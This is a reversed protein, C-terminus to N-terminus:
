PTSKPSYYITETKTNNSVILRILFIIIRYQVSHIDDYKFEKSRLKRQEASANIGSSSFETQKGTWRFDVTWIRLSMSRWEACVEPRHDLQLCCRQSCNILTQQSATPQFKSSGLFLGVQTSDTYNHQVAVSQAPLDATVWLASSGRVHEQQTMRWSISENAQMAGADSPAATADMFSYENICAFRETQATQCQERRINILDVLQPCWYTQFERM